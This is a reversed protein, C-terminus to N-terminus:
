LVVHSRDSKPDQTAIPESFIAILYFLAVVITGFMALKHKRFKRWMLTWQTAIFIDEQSNKKIVKELTTAAM